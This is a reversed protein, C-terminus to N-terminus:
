KRLLLVSQEDTRVNDNFAIDVANEKGPIKRAITLATIEDSGNLTLTKIVGISNGFLVEDGVSLETRDTPILANAFREPTLSLGLAQVSFPSNLADIFKVVAENPKVIAGTGYDKRTM